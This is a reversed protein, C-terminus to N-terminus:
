PKTKRYRLAITKAEHYIKRFNRDLELPGFGKAKPLEKPIDHRPFRLKRDRGDTFSIFEGPRLRFFVEARRKPVEREGQTIRAEWSLGTGKSVSRTPDKVIEFFREYYKATDPDNVKGFFQYSLNALM